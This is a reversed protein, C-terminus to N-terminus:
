TGHGALRQIARLRQRPAPHYVTAPYWPREGVRHAPSAAEGQRGLDPGPVGPYVGSRFYVDIFNLGIAAHRVIAEGAGPDGVDVESWELVDPGGLERVRIAHTM